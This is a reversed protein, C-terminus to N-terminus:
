RSRESDRGRSFGPMDAKFEVWNHKRDDYVSRDPAPFQPDAFAGVAVGYRDVDRESYWYVTAGCTPCFFEHFPKGSDAARIFERAVGRIELDNWAFYAGAGFVSGSKRQCAECSCVVVASPEVKTTVVLEGCQCKATRSM